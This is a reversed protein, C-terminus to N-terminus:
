TPIINIQILYTMVMKIYIYKACLGFRICVKFVWRRGTNRLVVSEREPMVEMVRRVCIWLSTIALPPSYRLSIDLGTLTVCKSQLELIMMKKWVPPRGRARAVEVGEEGEEGEAPSLVAAGSM